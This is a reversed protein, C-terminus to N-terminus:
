IYVSGITMGLKKGVAPHTQLLRWFNRRARAPPCSKDVFPFKAILSWHKLKKAILIQCIEPRARMSQVGQSACDACMKIRADDGGDIAFAYTCHECRWDDGFTEFERDIWDQEKRKQILEGLAEHAEADPSAQRRLLRPLLEGRGRAHRQPEQTAQRSRAQHGVRRLFGQHQPVAESNPEHESISENAPNELTAFRFLLTQQSDPIKGANPPNRLFQRLAFYEGGDAPISHGIPIVFM